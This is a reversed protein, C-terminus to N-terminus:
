TSNMGISPSSVEERVMAGRANVEVYKIGERGRLVSDYQQELGEKGM